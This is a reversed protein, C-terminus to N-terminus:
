TSIGISRPDFHNSHFDLFGLLLSGTDMVPSQEQLYRAVMLVLGYSSLGGSYSEMLGREKLFQKLVLVVPRLGPNETM